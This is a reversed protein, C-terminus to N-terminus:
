RKFTGEPLIRRGEADDGILIRMLETLDEEGLVSNLAKEGGAGIVFV